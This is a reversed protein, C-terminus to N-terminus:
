VLAGIELLLARFEECARLHSTYNRDRVPEDPLDLLTLGSLFLEHFVVREGFGVRGGAFRGTTYCGRGSSFASDDARVVATDADRLKGDVLQFCHCTCCTFNCAGCEVCDQSFEEWLTSDHAGRIAAALDM